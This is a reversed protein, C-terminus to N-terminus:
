WVQWFSLDEWVNGHWYMLLWTALQSVVRNMFIKCDLALYVKLLSLLDVCRLTLYLLSATHFPARWVWVQAVVLLLHSVRTKVRGLLEATILKIVASLVILLDVLSHDCICSVRLGVGLNILRGCVYWLLLIMDHLLLWNLARETRLHTCSAWISKRLIVILWKAVLTEVITLFWDLSPRFCVFIM